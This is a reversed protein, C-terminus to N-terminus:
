IGSQGDKQQFTTRAHHEPIIDPFSARSDHAPIAPISRDATKAEAEQGSVASLVM